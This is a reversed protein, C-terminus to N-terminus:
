LGLTEGAFAPALPVLPNVLPTLYDLFSTHVTPVRLGAYDYAHVWAPDMVRKKDKGSALKTDVLGYSWTPTESHQRVITVLKGTKGREFAWFAARYGVGYAIEADAKSRFSSSVRQLEGLKIVRLDASIGRQKCYNAAEDSLRDGAGGLRENGFLDKGRSALPKFDADRIGESVCYVGYGEDQERRAVLTVFMDLDFPGHEPLAILHPGYGFPQGLMSAATLFGADRGMLEIVYHRGLARAEVALHAVQTAVFNAATGFGPCADVVLIEDNAKFCGEEARDPHPDAVADPLDNDITKPVSLFTPYDTREPHREAYDALANLTTLTDDGGVFFVHEVRLQDCVQLVRGTDYDLAGEPSGGSRDAPVKGGLKYRGSGIWTSPTNKVLQRAHNDRLLPDIRAVHRQGDHTAHEGILSGTGGLAAYIAVEGLGYDLCGEVVGMNTLNIVATPGGGNCILVNKTAM